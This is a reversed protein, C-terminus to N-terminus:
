SLRSDRYEHKAQALGLGNVWWAAELLKATPKPGYADLARESAELDLSKTDGYGREVMLSRRKRYEDRFLSLVDVRNDEAYRTFNRVTFHLDSNTM